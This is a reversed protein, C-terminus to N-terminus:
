RFPNNSWYTIKRYMTDKYKKTKIDYEKREILNIHDDFKTYVYYSGEEPNDEYYTKILNKNKDYEQIITIGWSMQSHVQHLSNYTLEVFNHSSPNVVIVYGKADREVEEFEGNEDVLRGEKDFYYSTRFEDVAYSIQAEKVHGTLDYVYADFYKRQANAPVVTFLVVCVLALLKRNTRM